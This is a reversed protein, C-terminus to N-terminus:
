DKKLTGTAKDYTWQGPPLDMAKALDAMLRDHRGQATNAFTELAKLRRTAESYVRYASQQELHAAGVEALADNLEGTANEIQSVQEQSLPAENYDLRIDDDGNM